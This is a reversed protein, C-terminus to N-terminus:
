NKYNSQKVKKRNRLNFLPSLASPPAEKVTLQPMKYVRTNLEKVGNFYYATNVFLDRPFIGKIKEHGIEHLGDRIITSCSRTFLNFDAYKEPKKPNPKTSKIVNLERCYINSLKKTDLGEIRVVHIMRMFNRGFKDYYIRGDDLKEFKANNPSPAFEGLAPRFFYEEVSMIENENLLHSFNFIEGNVNIANHGILSMWYKVLRENYYLEVFPIGKDPNDPWLIVIPLENEYDKQPLIRGCVPKGKWHLLYGEWINESEFYKEGDVGLLFSSDGERTLIGNFIQNSLNM